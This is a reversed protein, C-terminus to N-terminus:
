CRVAASAVGWGRGVGHRGSREGSGVRCPQQGQRRQQHRRAERRRPQGAVGWARPHIRGGRPADAAPGQGFVGHGTGGDGQHLVAPQRQHLAEPHAIQGAAGGGGRVRHELQGAHRLGEGGGRHGGQHITLLQAPLLRHHRQQRAEAELVGVGALPHVGPIQEAVAGAKGGEEAVQEIVEAVAVGVHQAPDAVHLGGGGEAVTGGVGVDAEEEGTLQRGLGAALGERFEGAGQDDLGQGHGSRAHSAAQDTVAAVGVCEGVDAAGM